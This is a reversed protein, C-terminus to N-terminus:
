VNTRSELGLILTEKQIQDNIYVSMSTTTSSRELQLRSSTFLFLLLMIRKCSISLSFPLQMCTLRWANICTLGADSLQTSADRSWEDRSAVTTLLLRTKGELPFSLSLPEEYKPLSILADASTECCLERAAEVSM